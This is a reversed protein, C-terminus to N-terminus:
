AVFTPRVKPDYARTTTPHRRNGHSDEKHAEHSATNLFANLHETLVGMDDYTLGTHCAGPTKRWVSLKVM